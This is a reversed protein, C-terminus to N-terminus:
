ANEAVGDEEEAAATEEQRNEKRKRAEEMREEDLQRAGALDDDVVDEGDIRKVKKHVILVEFRVNSTETVPNGEVRIEELPQLLGLSSFGLTESVKNRAVDLIKLAPLDAWTGDLCKLRNDSADLTVLRPASLGRLSELRNSALNLNTLVPMCRVGECDILRNGRIDLSEVRPHGQFAHCVSIKNRAFSVSKLAPMGLPPLEELRNDNLNLVRLHRLSTECWGAISSVGNSSLNLVVVHPLVGLPSIDWILNNSLDVQRLHVYRELLKVSGVKKGICDLKTYAVGEGAITKEIQSLDLLSEDLEVAEEFNLRLTLVEEEVEGELEADTQEGAM